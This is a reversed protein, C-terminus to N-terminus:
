VDRDGGILWWNTATDLSGALPSDPSHFVIPGVQSERRFLGLHQVMGAAPGEALVEVHLAAADQAAAWQAAASLLAGTVEANEGRLDVLQVISPTTRRVVAYGMLRGDARACVIEHRWVPNRRYRWNLYAADRVGVVTRGCALRADLADFEDGCDSALLEVNVGTAGGHWSQRVRLAMDGVAGVLAALMRNGLRGRVLRTVSLPQMWREDHGLSNVGMRRYVAHMSANSFDYSFAYSGDDVPALTARLLRLAPGLARQSRDIAFDGLNLARVIDGGVRMRRPHAASTGVSRGDGHEALWVLAPGDPNALYLWDFRAPAAAAPLANALVALIREREAAPDVQRISIESM